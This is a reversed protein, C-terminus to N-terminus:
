LCATLIQTLESAAGRRQWACEAAHHFGLAQLARYSEFEAKWLDMAANWLGNRRSTPLGEFEESDVRDKIMMLADIAKM